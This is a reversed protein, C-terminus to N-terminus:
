FYSDDEVESKVHEGASLLLDGGRVRKNVERGSHAGRRTERIRADGSDERSDM